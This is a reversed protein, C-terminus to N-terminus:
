MMKYSVIALFMGWAICAKVLDGAVPNVQGFRRSCVALAAVLAVSIVLGARGAGAFMVAPAWALGLALQAAYLAVVVPSRMGGEAWVLWAALGMLSSTAAASAHIAWAPPRWTRSPHTTPSSSLISSLISLILPISIAAALSRLGRRAMARKKERTTKEAPDHPQAAPTTATDNKSRQRLTQTDM